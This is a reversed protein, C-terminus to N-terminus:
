QTTRRAEHPTDRWTAAGIGCVTRCVKSNRLLTSLRWMNSPVVYLAYVWVATDCWGQAPPCAPCSTSPSDGGGWWEHQPRDDSRRMSACPSSATAAERCSSPRSGAGCSGGGGRGSERADLAPHNSAASSWRHSLMLEVGRLERASGAAAGRPILRLFTVRGRGRGHALWPAGAGGARGRLAIWAEVAREAWCAGM